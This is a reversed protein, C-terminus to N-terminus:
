NCDGEGLRWALNGTNTGTAVRGADMKRVVVLQDQIMEGLDTCCNFLPYCSPVTRWLQKIGWFSRLCADHRKVGCRGCIKMSLLVYPVRSPSSFMVGPAPVPLKSPAPSSPDGKRRAPGRRGAEMGGWISKGIRFWRESSPVVTPCCLAVAQPGLFSFCFVSEDFQEVPGSGAKIQPWCSSDNRRPLIRFQNCSHSILFARESYPEGCSISAVFADSAHGGSDWI